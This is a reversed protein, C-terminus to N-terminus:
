SYMFLGGALDRAPSNWAAEAAGRLRSKETAHSLLSGNLDFIGARVSGSGVDVGIVTKTITM